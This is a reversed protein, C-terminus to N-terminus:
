CFCVCILLRIELITINRHAEGERNLLSIGPSVGQPYIIHTHTNQFIIFTWFIPEHCALLAMKIHAYKESNPTCQLRSMVVGLADGICPTKPSILAVIAMCLYDKWKAWGTGHIKLSKPDWIIDVFICCFCVYHVFGNIQIM